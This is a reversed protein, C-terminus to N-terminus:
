CTGSALFRPRRPNLHFVPKEGLFVSNEQIDREGWKKKKKDKLKKYFIM